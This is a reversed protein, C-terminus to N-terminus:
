NTWRSTTPCRSTSRTSSSAGRCWRGTGVVSVGKQVAISKATITVPAANGLVATPTDNANLPVWTGAANASDTLPDFAGTGIPVVNTGNAFDRPVFFSFTM